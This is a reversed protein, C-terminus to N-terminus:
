TTSSTRALLMSVGAWSIVVSLLLRLYLEPVVNSFQTGLFSGLAISLLIYKLKGWELPQFRLRFLSASVTTAFVVVVATAVVAPMAFDTVFLLFPVLLIGGGIGFLSALGGMVVGSLLWAWLPFDMLSADDSGLSVLGSIKLVALLIFGGFLKRLLGTRVVSSLYAGLFTGLVTGPILKFAVGLHLNDANYLGHFSLSVASTVAITCLSLLMASRLETGLLVLYPIMVIGGGVGFSANMFGVICGILLLHM